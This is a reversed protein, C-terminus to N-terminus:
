QDKYTCPLKEGNVDNSRSGTDLVAKFFCDFKSLSGVFHLLQGVCLYNMLAIVKKALSLESKHNIEM